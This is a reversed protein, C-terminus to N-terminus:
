RAGRRDLVRHLGVRDYRRERSVRDSDADLEFAEGPETVAGVAVAVAADGGVERSADDVGFTLAPTRRLVAGWTAREAARRDPVSRRRKNTDTRRAYQVNLTGIRAREIVSDFRRESHLHLAHIARAAAVRRSDVM